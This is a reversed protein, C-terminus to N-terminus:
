PVIHHHHGVRRVTSAQPGEMGEAEVFRVETGVALDEFRADVVANRHFYVDRGDSTAIFGHDEEPFLRAVKGHPPAEHAKTLGGTMRVYDELQRRVADFADRVAVYVDERAHDAPPDRRVVIEKGPVTLDIRIHFLNGATHRRHPEEIMVRCATIRDCYRELAEIKERVKAEVADSRDINRFVIEPTVQM